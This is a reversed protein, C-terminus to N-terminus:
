VIAMSSKLGGDIACARLGEGLKIESLAVEKKLQDGLQGSTGKGMGLVRGESTLFLTHSGGIKVDKITEGEVLIKAFNETLDKPEHLFDGSFLQGHLNQGWGFIRDQGEKEVLAIM